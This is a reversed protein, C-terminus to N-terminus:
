SEVPETATTSPSSPEVRVVTGARSPHRWRHPPPRGTSRCPHRRGVRRHRRRHSRAPRGIRQARGHRLPRRGVHGPRRSSAPGSAVQSWRVPEGSWSRAASGAQRARGDVLVVVVLVVVVVVVVAGVRVVTGSAPHPRAVASGSVLAHLTSRIVDHDDDDTFREHIQDDRGVSRDLRREAPRRVVGCLAAALSPASTSNTPPSDTSRKPPRNRSWSPASPTESASRPRSRMASWGPPRRSRRRRPLRTGSRSRRCTPAAPRAARRDSAAADDSPGFSM